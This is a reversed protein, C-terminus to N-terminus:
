GQQAEKQTLRRMLNLFDKGPSINIDSIEVRNEKRATRDYLEISDNLIKRIDNYSFETDAAYNKEENKIDRHAICKSRYKHYNEDM